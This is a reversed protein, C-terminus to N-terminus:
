TVAIVSGDTLDLLDQAALPVVAFPTGAAAWIQEFSLLDEDVYTEIPEPHGFPPVGGIAYGTQLRVFAADAKALPEALLLGVAAENIRNAGSAVVLIPQGSQAGRFIISKAIQAVHCGLAAAAEAATRTSEPLERVQHPLGRERLLDQVRQAAPSLSM